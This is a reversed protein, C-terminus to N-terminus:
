YDMKIAAIEFPKLPFSIENNNVAISQLPQEMLNAVAAKKIPNAVRLNVKGGTGQSEYLHLILSHSDEAKKVATLIVNNPKITLFSYESPYKGEHATVQRAMLPYNFEYGRRITEAQRWDGAHPYLSFSFHHLGRDAKPDPYTPARLLSLRMVNNRVDYGYKSDNILSFGHQKDSLDAWRLASVEFQAQEWSNNRTTPREITGFPIEYTAMTNTAALPFATKLLLHSENWDIDNVIKVEDSHAYLMIEQTYNSHNWHRKIKIVNRLPNNEILEVADAQTLKVPKQDLTGPMM